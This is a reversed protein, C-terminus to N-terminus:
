RKLTLPPLQNEGEKISVRLETRSADSYKPPIINPGPVLSGGEKIPRYYAVTLKYDGAPAGDGTDFTTLTFNGSADTSAQAPVLEPNEPHLVVFANALPKGEWLVQGQAKHTPIRAVGDGCGTTAILLAAIAIAAVTFYGAPRSALSPHFTDSTTRSM